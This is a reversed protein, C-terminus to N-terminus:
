RGTAGLHGPGHAPVLVGAETYRACRRHWELIGSMWEKLDDAHQTLITRVPEDLDCEDFMAPLDIAIIHEFQRMRAGM